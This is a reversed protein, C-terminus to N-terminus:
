ASKRRQVRDHRGGPRKGRAAQRAPQERAQVSKKLLAM